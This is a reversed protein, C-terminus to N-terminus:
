RQVKTWGAPIEEPRTWAVVAQTLWGGEVVERLRDLFTKLSEPSFKGLDDDDVLLVRLPSGETWACALAITLTAWESGSAVGKGHPAGDAGVIEWKCAGDDLILRVEWGAPVYRNVCALADTRVRELTRKLAMSAEGELVKFVANHNRAKRAATEHAELVAVQGAQVTVQKLQERCHNLAQDIDALQQLTPQPPLAAKRAILAEKHTLLEMRQKQVELWAAHQKRWAVHEASEPVTRQSDQQIAANLANAAAQSAAQRAEHRKTIAEVTGRIDTVTNGGSARCCPCVGSKEAATLIPRLGGLLKEDADALARAEELAKRLPTLDVSSAAPPGFAPEPSDSEPLGQLAELAVIFKAKDAQYEGNLRSAQALAAGERALRELENHQQVAQEQTVLAADGLEARAAAASEESRKLQRGAELKLQRFKEALTAYTPEAVPGGDGGRLLRETSYWLEQQEDSLGDPLKVETGKGFRKFVAERLRTEGFSLIEGIAVTPVIQSADIAALLVNLEGVAEHKPRKFGPEDAMMTTMSGQPSSITATLSSAGTSAFNLLESPRDAVSPHSGLIALKIADLVATKKARNPGVIATCPALKVDIGGKVNAQVHTFAAFKSRPAAGAALMDARTEVMAKGALEGLNLPEEMTKTQDVLEGLTSVDLAIPEGTAPKKDKRVIKKEEPTLAGLTAAGGFANDPLIAPLVTREGTRVNMLEAPEGLGLGPLEPQPLPAPASKEETHTFQADLVNEVPKKNALKTTVTALDSKKRRTAM